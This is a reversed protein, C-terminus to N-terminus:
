PAKREPCPQALHAPGLWPAGTWWHCRACYGHAADDPHHSVAGCCPCSFAAPPAGPGPASGTLNMWHIGTAEMEARTQTPDWKLLKCDDNGCFADGEVALVLAAHPECWPCHLGVPQDRPDHPREAV